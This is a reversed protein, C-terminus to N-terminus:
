LISKDLNSYSVPIGTVKLVKRNDNLIKERIIPISFVSLIKNNKGWVYRFIFDYPKTFYWSFAGSKRIIDAIERGGERHEIYELADDMVYKVHLMKKRRNKEKDMDSTISSTRIRYMVGVPKITSFVPLCSLVKLHFGNDEFTVNKDIYVLNNDKLFQTRYLKGWSVCSLKLLTQELNDETVKYKDYGEYFLGSKEAKKVLEINDPNDAFAESSACVFDSNTKEIKNYLNELTEPLIYDDSDLFFIYDGAANRMGTNRAPALGRNIDHHVIKIRDDNKAYEEITKISNDTSCDDVCIIEFDKFTQNLVSKICEEIYKEVNYVPIIVSIKKM